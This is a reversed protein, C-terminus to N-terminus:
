QLPRIPGTYRDGELRPVVSGGKTVIEAVITEADAEEVKDLKPSPHDNGALHRGM